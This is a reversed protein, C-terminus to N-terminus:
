VMVEQFPVYHNTKGALQEKVGEVIHHPMFPEGDYKRIHGDASFGTESRLYRAFQGSHNNEVIITKKAASLIKNVADAHFPVIWKIALQNAKIGKENLQAVAEKIVGYTSGWGILTVDADKPGELAPAKIDNLANELKRARKEVMQRRKHPNTFEDSILVGDEDHEDTAVVHVYGKLGPIARPSVGSKTDKYRQYGDGETPTTILEGREIKPHMNITDPDASFTGESILLDSIV